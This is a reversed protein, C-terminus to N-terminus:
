ERWVSVLARTRSPRLALRTGDPAVIRDDDELAGTIVLHNVLRIGLRTAAVRDATLPPEIRLEQGIWFALGISELAGDPTQVFSTLGLAPFPGGDLWASTASEFFRRGIASQAPGWVVAALEDFQRVMDCALALLGRMLPMSHGGTALHPGPSLTLAEFDAAAPLAALDFRHAPEPFPVAAGPALGALDFTLGDRLLEIWDGEGHVLSRTDDGDEASVEPRATGAPDHSVSLAPLRGAFAAIEDRDPRKGKAFLLHLEVDRARPSQSITWAGRKLQGILALFGSVCKARKGYSTSDGFGGVTGSHAM